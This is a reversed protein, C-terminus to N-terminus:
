EDPPRGPPAAALRNRFEIWTDFFGILALMVGVQWLLLLLLFPILLQPLRVRAVAVVVIGFGNLWYIGALAIAGNWAFLRIAESPRERDVFWLVAALIAAWVLWEPPRVDRFRGSIPPGGARLLLRQLLVLSLSTAVLIGAVVAGPLLYPWQEVITRQAELFRDAAEAEVATGAEDFRRELDAVAAHLGDDVQETAAAMLGIVLLSAVTATRALILGFRVGIAAWLGVPLGFSAAMLGAVAGDPSWFGIGAAVAMSLGTIAAFSRQGRAVSLAVPVPAFALGFEPFVVIIAAIIPSWIQLVRLDPRPAEAM